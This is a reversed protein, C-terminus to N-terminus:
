AGAAQWPLPRHPLNSKEDFTGLLIRNLDQASALDHGFPKEVIVRAGKTCGSKALQEVVLGFLVPPIALYHAPRQGLGTGQPHGSLDGSRQLRRGCLAAPGCLKDFAASRTRWAKGRQRAGAGQTPRAELRSQGRRHGARGLHGRKVM